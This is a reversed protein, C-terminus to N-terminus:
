ASRCRGLLKSMKICKDFIIERRDIQYLIPMTDANFVTVRLVIISLFYCRAGARRFPIHVVGHFLAFLKQTQQERQHHGPTQQEQRCGGRVRLGARRAVRRDIDVAQHAPALAVLDIGGDGVPTQRGVQHRVHRALPILAIGGGDTRERARPIARALEVGLEGARGHVVARRVGGFVAVRAVAHRIIPRQKGAPARALLDVEDAVAEATSRDAQEEVDEGVARSRLLGRGLGGARLDGGKELAALCVPDIGQRRQGGRVVARSEELAAAAHRLKRGLGRGRHCLQQADRVELAHIVELELLEAEVALVALGHEFREVAHQVRVEQRVVVVDETVQRDVARQFEVVVDLDLRVDVVEGIGAVLRALAGDGALAGRGDIHCRQEYRKCVLHAGAIVPRSSAAEADVLGPRRVVPQDVGDGGQVRGVAGAAAKGLGTLGAVHLAVAVGVDAILGTHPVDHGHAVIVVAVEDGTHGHGIQCRLTHRRQALEVQAQHIVEGM